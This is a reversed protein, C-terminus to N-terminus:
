EIIQIGTQPLVQYFDPLFRANQPLSQHSLSSKRFLSEFHTFAKRANGGLEM